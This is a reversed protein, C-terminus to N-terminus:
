GVDGANILMDIDERRILEKIVKYQRRTEPLVKLSESLEFSIPLNELRWKKYKEDHEKPEKLGILHGVAWTVVYKEGEMYGNHDEDAGVVKAIDKGAAPKEAVILTKGM